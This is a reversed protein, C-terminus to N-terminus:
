VYRLVRDNTRNWLKMQSGMAEPISKQIVDVKTVIRCDWLITMNFNQQAHQYCMMYHYLVTCSAIDNLGIM